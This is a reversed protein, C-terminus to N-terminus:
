SASAAVKAACVKAFYTSVLVTSPGANRFEFSFIESESIFSRTEAEGAPSRPNTSM